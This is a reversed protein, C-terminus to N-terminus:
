HWQGRSANKRKLETMQQKKLRKVAAQKKRKRETTRKEYHEKARLTSLKGSREVARKFKRLAKEINQEIKSITTMSTNVTTTLLIQLILGKAPDNDFSIHQACQNKKISVM